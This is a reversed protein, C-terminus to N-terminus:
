KQRGKSAVRRRTGKYADELFTQRIEIGDSMLKIVRPAVAALAHPTLDIEFTRKISAELLRARRALDMEASAQGAVVTDASLFGLTIADIGYALANVTFGPRIVGQEILLRLYDNSIVDLEALHERLGGKALNGNREPDSTFLARLVPDSMAALYKARVIRHPLTERDDQRMDDIFSRMARLYDRLFVAYYMEERSKWHLYITGKGVGAMDAVDDIAVRRYGWRILLERASDLIREARLRRSVAGGLRTERRM